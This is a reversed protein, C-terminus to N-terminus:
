LNPAVFNLKSCLGGGAEAGFTMKIQFFCTKLILLCFWSFLVLAGFVIAKHFPMTRISLRTSAPQTDIFSWGKGLSTLFVPPIILLVVFLFPFLLVASSLVGLPILATSPTASHRNLGDTWDQEPFSTLLAWRSAPSGQYCVLPIRCLIWGSRYLRGPDKAGCKVGAM